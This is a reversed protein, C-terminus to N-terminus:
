REKLIRKKIIIAPNGAVVDFSDVSKTVVAAAAIVSGKKLRVGPCIFAQACVWVHDEIFIPKTVLPRQLSTIDHTGTCLFVRQSIAVKSGIIIKNMTYCDVGDGLVSYDGMELNWPAWVFCSPSVKCGLGIKAGFLRLLNIRWGNLVWRPNTKFFVFWVVNWLLRLVKSKKSLQDDYKYQEFESM